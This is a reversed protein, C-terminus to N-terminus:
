PVRNSHLKRFLQRAIQHLDIFGARMNRIYDHLANKRRFLPSEPGFLIVRARM